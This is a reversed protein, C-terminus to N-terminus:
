EFRPDYPGTTSTRDDSEEETEPSLMRILYFALLAAPSYSGRQCSQGM